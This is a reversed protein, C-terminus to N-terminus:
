AGGGAQRLQTSLWGRNRRAAKADSYGQQGAGSLTYVRRRPRDTPTADEWEGTIWGIGELRELIPYVTGAGLGTHECIRYGWPPEAPDSTALLELVLLTPITMRIPPKSRPETM